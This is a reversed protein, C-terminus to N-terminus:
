KVPRMCVGKAVGARGRWVGSEKVNDKEKFSLAVQRIFTKALRRFETETMFRRQHEDNQFREMLDGMLLSDDKNGTVLVNKFMWDALPNAKTTVDRGWDRMGEPLRDFAHPDVHELLIDLLASRWVPFKKSLEADMLFTHEEPETPMVAVFKSRMPAFVLRDVFVEDENDYKPCDGENFILVLNARWVFKFRDGLSFKRGEVMVDPGGSIMKLLALELTMNKKLEEAVILRTARFPELGADHSNRDGQFSGACVFKTNCAYFDGFFIRM